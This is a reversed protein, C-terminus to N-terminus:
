TTPHHNSLELKSSEIAPVRITTSPDTDSNHSAIGNENGNARESDSASASGSERVRPKMDALCPAVFITRTISKALTVSAVFLWLIILSVLFVMSLNQFFSSPIENALAITSSTYVGLPFIFGWYGMSFKVTSLRSLVSTVGHFLGAQVMCHLVGDM